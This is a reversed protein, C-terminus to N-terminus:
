VRYVIAQEGMHENIITQQVFSYSGMKKGVYVFSGDILDYDGRGCSRRYHERRRHRVPSKHHGGKYPQTTSPRYEIGCKRLELMVDKQRIIVEDTDTVSPQHIKNERNTNETQKRPKTERGYFSVSYIKNAYEIAYEKLSDFVEDDYQLCGTIEKITNLIKRGMKNDYMNDFYYYKRYQDNIVVYDAKWQLEITNDSIAYTYLKYREFDEIDDLQKEIIFLFSIEDNLKAEITFTDGYNKTLYYLDKKFDSELEEIKNTAEGTCVFQKSMYFHTIENYEVALKLKMWYEDDFKSLKGKRAALGKAYEITNTGYKKILKEVGDKDTNLLDKGVNIITDDIFERSRNNWM